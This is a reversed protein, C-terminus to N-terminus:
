GDIVMSSHGMRGAYWWVVGACCGLYVAYGVWFSVGFVGSVATAVLGSPIAVTALGLRHRLRRGQIRAVLVLVIGFGLGAGVVIGVVAGILDGWGSSDGRGALSLIVGLVVASAIQVCPTAVTVAM